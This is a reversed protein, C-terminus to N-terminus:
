APRFPGRKVKSRSRLGLHYQITSLDMKFYNAIRQAPWNFDHYMIKFLDRRAAIIYADRRRSFIEDRNTEHKKLVMEIASTIKESIFVPQPLIPKVSLDYLEIKPAQEIPRRQESGRITLM